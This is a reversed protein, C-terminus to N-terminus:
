VSDSLRKTPKATDHTVRGVPKLDRFALLLITECYSFAKNKQPNFYNREDVYIPPVWAPHDAHIRSPLYIFKRHERRGQVERVTVAM